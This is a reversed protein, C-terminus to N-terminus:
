SYSLGMGCLVGGLIGGRPSGDARGIVYGPVAGVFGPRRTSSVKWWTSGVAM